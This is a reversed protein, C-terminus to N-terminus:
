TNYAHHQTHTNFLNFVVVLGILVKLSVWVHTQAGQAQRLATLWPTTVVLYTWDQVKSVISNDM